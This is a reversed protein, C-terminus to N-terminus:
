VRKLLIELIKTIKINIYLEKYVSVMDRHIQKLEDILADKNFRLQKM